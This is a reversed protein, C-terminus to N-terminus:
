RGNLGDSDIGGMGASYIKRRVNQHFGSPDPPPSNYIRMVHGGRQRARVHMRVCVCVSVCEGMSTHPPFSAINSDRSFEAHCSM